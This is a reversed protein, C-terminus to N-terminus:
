VGFYCAPPRNFGCAGPTKGPDHALDRMPLQGRCRSGPCVQGALNRHYRALRSVGVIARSRNAPSDFALSVIMFRAIDQIEMGGSVAMRSIPADNLAGAVAASCNRMPNMAGFVPMKACSPMSM